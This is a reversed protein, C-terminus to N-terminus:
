DDMDYGAAFGRKEAKLYALEAVMERFKDANAGEVPRNQLANSAVM